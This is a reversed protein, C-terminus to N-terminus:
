MTFRSSVLSLTSDRKQPAIGKKCDYSFNLVAVKKSSNKMTNILNEIINCSCRYSALCSAKIKRYSIM